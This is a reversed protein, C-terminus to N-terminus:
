EKDDLSQITKADLGTIKQIIDMPIGRRLSKEVIEMNTIKVGKEKATNIETTWDCMAMEWNNYRQLFDKESSLARMIEICEKTGSDTQLMEKITEKWTKGSTKEM